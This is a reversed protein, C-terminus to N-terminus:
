NRFLLRHVNFYLFPVFDQSFEKIGSTKEVPGETKLYQIFIPTNLCIFISVQFIFFNLDTAFIIM